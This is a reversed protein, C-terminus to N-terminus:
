ESYEFRVNDIAIDDEHAEIDMNVKWSLKHTGTTIPISYTVWPHEEDGNYNMNKWIASELTATKINGPNLWFALYFSPNPYDEWGIHLYDFKLVGNAPATFNIQAYAYGSAYVTTTGSQDIGGTGPEGFIDGMLTLYNDTEDDNWMKDIIIGSNPEQSEDPSYSTNCETVWKGGPPSELVYSNFNEIQISLPTPGPIETPIPTNEPDIEPSNSGNDISCSSTFAYFIFAPLLININKMTFFNNTNEKM